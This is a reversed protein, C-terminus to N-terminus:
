SHHKSRTAAMSSVTKTAPATRNVSVLVNGTTGSISANSVFGPRGALMVVTENSANVLRFSANGVRWAGDTRNGRADFYATAARFFEGAESANEWRLAWAYSTTNGRKAVLVQDAEWEAAAQAARENPLETGLMIRVFAEGKVRGGTWRWSSNAAMLAVSLNKPPDEGPADGHIIQEMSRPPNAYIQSLNAPSDIRQRIYRAGFYYPALDLKRAPGAHRYQDRLRAYPSRKGDHYTQMYVDATFVAAGETISQTVMKENAEPLRRSEVRELTGTRYQVIHTFEHALYYRIEADSSQQSVYIYIRNTLREAFGDTGTINDYMNETPVIGVLRPFPKPTPLSVKSFNVVKVIVRDPPTANRNLLKATRAFVRTTNVPLTDM